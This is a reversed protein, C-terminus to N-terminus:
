RGRPNDNLEVHMLNHICIYHAVYARSLSQGNEGRAHPGGDILSTSLIVHIELCFCRSNRKM